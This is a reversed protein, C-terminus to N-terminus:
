SFRGKVSAWMALVREAVYSIAWKCAAYIRQTCGVIPAEFTSTKALVTELYLQGKVFAWIALFRAAAYNVVSACMGYTRQAYEAVTAQHATRKAAVDELHLRGKVFAGIALFREAVYTVACKCLAYTRQVYGSITAEYATVKGLLAERHSRYRSRAVSIIGTAWTYPLRIVSVTKNWISHYDVDPLQGRAAVAVADIRKLLRRGIECAIGALTLIHGTASPEFPKKRSKPLPGTTTQHLQPDAKSSVPKAPRAPLIYDVGVLVKALAAQHARFALVVVFTVLRQLGIHLIDALSTTEPQGPAVVAKLASLDVEAAAKVKAASQRVPGVLEDEIFVTVGGQRVKSFNPAVYGDYATTVQARIRQLVEALTASEGEGVPTILSSVRGHVASYTAVFPAVYIAYLVSLIFGYIVSPYSSRDGQAVGAVLKSVPEDIADLTYGPPSVWIATKRGLDVVQSARAAYDITERILTGRQAAAVFGAEGARAKAVGM